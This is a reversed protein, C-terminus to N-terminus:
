VSNSLLRINERDEYSPLASYYTRIFFAIILQFVFLVSVITLDLTRDDLLFLTGQTTNTNSDDHSYLIIYYINAIRSAVQFYQYFLYCCMLNKKYNITAILGNMSIVLTIGGVIYNIVFYYSSMFVDCICIVRVTTNLKDIILAREVLEQPIIVQRPELLLGEEENHNLYPNNLSLEYEQNTPYVVVSRKRTPM